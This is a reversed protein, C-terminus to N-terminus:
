RAGEALLRLAEAASILRRNGFQITHVAGRRILVYLASRSIRFERCFEQLTWAQRDKPPEMEKRKKPSEIRSM